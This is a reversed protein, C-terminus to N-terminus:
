TFDLVVRFEDTLTFVEVSGGEGRLGVIWASQGEFMEAVAAEVLHEGDLRVRQEGQFTGSGNGIIDVGDFRVEIFRDGEVELLEPRPGVHFPPTLERFWVRDPFGTTCDFVLRDYGEDPHAGVRTNTIAGGHPEPLRIRFDV